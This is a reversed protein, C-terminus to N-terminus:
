PSATAGAADEAPKLSWHANRFVWQDGRREALGTFYGSVATDHETTDTLVESFSAAVVAFDRTLPDVRLDDGFHLSIRKLTGPLEAVGQAAAAGSAFQLEGQSAMFFEPASSFHGAWAAPGRLTVDQAVELAFVRVDGTVEIREQETLAPSARSHPREHCGCLLLAGLPLLWLRTRM